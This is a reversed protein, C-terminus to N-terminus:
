YELQISVISRKKLKKKLNLKDFEFLLQNFKNLILKLCLKLCTPFLRKVHKLGLKLM